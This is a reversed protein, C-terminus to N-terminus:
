HIIRSTKRPCHSSHILFLKKLIKLMVLLSPRRHPLLSRSKSVKFKQVCGLDAMKRADENSDSFVGHPREAEKEDSSPERLEDNFDEWLMDMKDEDVFFEVNNKGNFDAFFGLDRTWNDTGRNGELSSFSRRQHIKQELGFKGQEPLPSVYWLSSTTFSPFHVRYLSNNDTITPFTFDDSVASEKIM